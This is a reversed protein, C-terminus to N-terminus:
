AGPPLAGSPRSQWAGGDAPQQLRARRGRHFQEEAQRRATVDTYLTVFGGTSLPNRRLEMVRGNPRKREITGSSAGAELLALRRAVEAEADVPGFEGALAQTRLIDRMPLGVRLMEAPVGTFESFQSNWEVLRLEADVMMVGDSMGALVARLRSAKHSPAEPDPEAGLRQKHEGGQPLAVGRRAWLRRGAASRFASGSRRWRSV